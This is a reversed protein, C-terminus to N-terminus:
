KDFLGDLGELNKWYKGSTISDKMMDNIDDGTGTGSQAIADIERM